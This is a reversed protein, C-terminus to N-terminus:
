CDEAVAMTRNGFVVPVIHNTGTASLGLDALGGRLQEVREKLRERREDTALDM